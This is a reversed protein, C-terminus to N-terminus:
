RRGDSRPGRWRLYREFEAAISEGSAPRLPEDAEEREELTRIYESIEEDDAAIQTVEQEWETAQDPLNGLPVEIDLLDEVRHLLALTAKPSPAQSVYHPVSAWFSISPVGAQVCAQQFV